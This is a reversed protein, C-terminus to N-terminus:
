YSVCHDLLGHSKNKSARVLLSNIGDNQDIRQQAEEKSIGWASQHRALLREHCLEPPTNLFWVQEFLGELSEWGSERLLLYLGEVIIVQVEPGVLIADEEPDKVAHDFTPWPVTHAPSNIITRLRTAMKQPDFTWPAGRRTHSEDPTRGAVGKSLESRYLHFGDMSLAVCRGPFTHNVRKAIKDALTTKGAGPEACIGFIARPKGDKAAELLIPLPDVTTHSMKNHTFETEKRERSGKEKREERFFGREKVRRLKM